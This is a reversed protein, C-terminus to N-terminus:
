PLQEIEVEQFDGGLLAGTLVRRSRDLHSEMARRAREPDRQSIAEAIALHDRTAEESFPAIGQSRVTAHGVANAIISIFRDMQLLCQRVLREAFRNHSASAIALHFRANGAEARRYSALDGVDYRFEALGAIERHEEDSALEAAREATAGELLRRIDFTDRVFQVTIRSVSYGRGPVRHVYGEEALRALAERVPTRSTGHLRALAPETLPTGPLYTGDIIRARIGVYAREAQSGTHIPASSQHTKPM